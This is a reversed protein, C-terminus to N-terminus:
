PDSADPDDATEDIVEGSQDNVGDGDSDIFYEVVPKQAWEEFDFGITAENEIEKPGIQEWTLTTALSMVIKGDDQVYAKCGVAGGVIMAALVAWLGVTVYVKRDM